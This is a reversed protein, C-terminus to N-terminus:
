ALDVPFGVTGERSCFPLLVLDKLVDLRGAEIWFIEIQLIGVAFDADFV